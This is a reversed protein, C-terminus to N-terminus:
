KYYQIPENPNTLLAWTISHKETDATCKAVPWIYYGKNIYSDIDEDKITPDKIKASQYFMNFEKNCAAKTFKPTMILPDNMDCFHKHWEHCENCWVYMVDHEKDFLNKDIIVGHLINRSDRAENQIEEKTLTLESAVKPNFSDNEFYCAKLIMQEMEPPIQNRLLGTVVMFKEFPSLVPRTFIKTSM